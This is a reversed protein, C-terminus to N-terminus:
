SESRYFFQEKVIKGKPNVEYVCIESMKNRGYEKFTADMNIACSFHDHSVVPDSVELSHVEEINKNFDESKKRLNDLGEVRSPAQSSEPELGIAQEDFLEDYAKMFEGRRCLEVLRHATKLTSM